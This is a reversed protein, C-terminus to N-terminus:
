TKAENEPGGNNDQSPKKNDRQFNSKHGHNQLVKSASLLKELSTKSLKQYRCLKTRCRASCTKTNRYAFVSIKQGCVLCYCPNMTDYMVEQGSIHEVSQSM